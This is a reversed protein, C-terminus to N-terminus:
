FSVIPTESSLRPLQSSLTLQSKSDFKRKKKQEKTNRISNKKM